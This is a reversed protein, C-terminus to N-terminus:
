FVCEERLEKGFVVDSCIKATHVVDQHNIIGAVSVYFVYLMVKIHEVWDHLECCFRFGVVFYIKQVNNNALGGVFQIVEMYLFGNKVSLM